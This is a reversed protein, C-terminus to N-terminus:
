ILLTYETRNKFMIKKYLKYYSDEFNIKYNKKEAAGCLKM